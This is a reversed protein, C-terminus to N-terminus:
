TVSCYMHKTWSASCMAAIHVVSACFTARVGPNTQPGPAKRECKMSFSWRM